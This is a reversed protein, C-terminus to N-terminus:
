GGIVALRRRDQPAPQPRVVAQTEEPRPLGDTWVGLATLLVIYPAFLLYGGGLEFTVLLLLSVAIYGKRWVAATLFVAFSILGLFGYDIFIQVAPNGTGNAFYISRTTAGPGYGILARWDASFAQVQELPAIYRAYGSTKNSGLEGFRDAFHGFESPLIIAFLGAILVSLVGLGLVRASYRVSTLGVLALTLALSLLGTGSFSVMYAVAYLPLWKWRGIIFLDLLIGLCLVQSFISPELLFLGNSRLTSSGYALLPNWAFGNELLFPSLKPVLPGLAFVRVHVFQLCFQVIGAVACLRVYFLFVEVVAAGDFRKNPRVFMPAYLFVVNMLSLLSFGVRMDPFLLAFVASALAVGMFVLLPLAHPASIRGRGSLLMWLALLWFAFLSISLPLGGSHGLPLGFRQLVICSIFTVHAFIVSAKDPRAGGPARSSSRHTWQPM